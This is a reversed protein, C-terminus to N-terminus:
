RKGTQQLWRLTYAFNVPLATFVTANDVVLQMEQDPRIIRMAKNDIVLRFGTIAPVDVVDTVMEEYGLHASGYLLWPANADQSPKYQVTTGSGEPVLIIGWTLSVLGGPAQTADVSGIIEGRIRVLTTQATGVSSFQLASTGAAQASFSGTSLEWIYRNKLPRARSRFPRAM